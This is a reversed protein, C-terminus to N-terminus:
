IWPTGPVELQAQYFNWFCGGLPTRFIHQLNGPSCGHWTTIEIFNCLLMNESNMKKQSCKQVAAQSLNDFNEMNKKLSHSQGVVCLMKSGVTRITLGFNRYLYFWHSSLYKIFSLKLKTIFLWISTTGKTAWYTPFPTPIFPAHHTHTHTHM